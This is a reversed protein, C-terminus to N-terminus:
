FIAFAIVAATVAISAWGVPGALLPPRPPQAAARAAANMERVARARIGTVLDFAREKDADNGFRFADHCADLVEAEDFREPHTIRDRIAAIRASPHQLVVATM